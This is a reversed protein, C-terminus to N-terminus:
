ARGSCNFRKGLCNAEAENFSKQARRVFQPVVLKGLCNAEAENFGADGVVV